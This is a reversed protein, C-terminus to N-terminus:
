QPAGQTYENEMKVGKRGGGSYVEVCKGWGGNECYPGACVTPLLGYPVITVALTIHSM